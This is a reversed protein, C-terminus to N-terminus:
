KKNEAIIYSPSRDSHKDSSPMKMDNRYLDLLKECVGDWRYKRVNRSIADRPFDSQRQFFETLAERIGEASGIKAIVGLRDGEVFERLEGVDTAVIPLGFYSGLFLLGSQYINRYPLCLVDAAKFYTEIEKNPIHREDLEIDEKRPSCELQELIRERHDDNRFAGAILLRSEQVDVKEFAELLIDLGKYEDIKGFFLIVKKTRKVGLEQRAEAPTLDTMPVEENLGLSSLRVKEQPVNFEEMLQKQARRTHVLLVHPIRYVWRYVRRYFSSHEKGHPLVNHVTYIYRGAVVRILANFVLGDFLIRRNQFLGIYHVTSGSHRLLEMLSLAYYRVLQAAKQLFGRGTDFGGRVNRQAVGLAALTPAEEDSSLVRMAVGNAHLGKIFGLTFNREFGAPLILSIKNHLM